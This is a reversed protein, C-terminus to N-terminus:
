KILYKIVGYIDSLTTMMYFELIYQIPINGFKWVRLLFFIIQVTLKKTQLSPNLVKSNLIGKTIIIQTKLFLIELNYVDYKNLLM